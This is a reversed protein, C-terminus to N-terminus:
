KSDGSVEVYWNDGKEVLLVSNKALFRLFEKFGSSYYLEVIVQDAKLEIINLPKIMGLAGIKRKVKLWDKLGDVPVFVKLRSYEVRPLVGKKLLRKITNASDHASSFLFGPLTENLLRNYMNKKDPFNEVDMASLTVDIFYDSFNAEALVVNSVQYKDAMAILVQKNGQILEGTTVIRRDDEDGNPLIIPLSSDEQLVKLWALRWYNSEEWLISNTGDSFIPLVLVPDVVAGKLPLNHEAVFHQVKVKRLSVTVDASYSDDGIVENNIEFSHVLKAIEKDSVDPLPVEDGDVVIRRLVKYFAHGQADIVAEDRALNADDSKKEIGKLTASYYHEDRDVAYAFPACVFVFLCLLYSLLIKLV